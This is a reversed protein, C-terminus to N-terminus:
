GSRPKEHNEGLEQLCIGLYYKMYAVVADKLISKLEIAM